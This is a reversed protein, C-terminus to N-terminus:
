TASVSLYQGVPSQGIDQLRNPQWYWADQPVGAGTLATKPLRGNHDMAYMVYAGGVQRLNSLCKARNSSERARSLSPLLIGLLIAIIGIVVMLEILTFARRAGRRGGRVVGHRM